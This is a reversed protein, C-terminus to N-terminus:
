GISNLHGLLKLLTFGLAVALFVTGKLFVYKLIGNAGSYVEVANMSSPLMTIIRDAKEAVEAPSSAVKLSIVFSFVLSISIRPFFDPTM